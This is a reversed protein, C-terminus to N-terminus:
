AASISYKLPGSFSRKAHDGAIGQELAADGGALGLGKARRHQCLDQGDPPPKRPRQGDMHGKGLIAVLTRRLIGQDQGDVPRIAGRDIGKQGMWDALLPARRRFGHQRAEEGPADMVM